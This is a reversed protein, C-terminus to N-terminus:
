VRTSLNGVDALEHIADRLLDALLTSLANEDGTPRHMTLSISPLAPLKGAPDLLALNSPLGIRTRITMGLGAASGAWLASLSASSLVCRWPIGARDMADTAIDRLVCPAELLVLPLPGNAAGLLPDFGAPGIWHLPLTALREGALGDAGADWAIALDLQGAAVRRQLEASRAVCVEIRANPHSRIFQGLVRALLAEGVDEQLGLRVEGALSASRLALAAEDNVELMRRAYALLTAGADTLALGRGAKRFLVAGAQDELKKLQASVASTSRGLQAAAKAYSGLDIGTAFTRLIDLDFNVLRM